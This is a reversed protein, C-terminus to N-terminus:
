DPTFTVVITMNMPAGSNHGVGFEWDQGSTVLAESVIATSTLPSAGNGFGQVTGSAIHKFLGAGTVGPTGWTTTATLTGPKDVKFSAIAQLPGPVSQTSQAITTTQPTAPADNSSSGDCGVLGFVFAISLVILAISMFRLNKMTQEKLIKNVKAM